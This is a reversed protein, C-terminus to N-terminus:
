ARMRRSFATKDLFTTTGIISRTFNATPSCDAATGSVPSSFFTIYVDAMVVGAQTAALVICDALQLTGALQGSAQALFSPCALQALLWGGAQEVALM